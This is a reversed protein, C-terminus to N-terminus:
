KLCVIQSKYMINIVRYQNWDTKSLVEKYFIKLRKLKEELQKDNGILVVHEGVRPVLAISGNREVNIAGFMSKWDKENSLFHYVNYVRKLAITNIKEPRIYSELVAGTVVPVRATYNASLPFKIKHEDIYFSQHFQNFVRLIPKRQQINIHLVGKDSVYANAAEVQPINKLITQEMLTLTRGSLVAGKYDFHSNILNKVTSQTIFFQEQWENIDVVMKNTITKEKYIKGFVCLVVFGAMALLMSLRILMNKTARQM